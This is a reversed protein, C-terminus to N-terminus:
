DELDKIWIRKELRELCLIIGADSVTERVWFLSNQLKKINGRTKILM